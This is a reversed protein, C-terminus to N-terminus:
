DFKHLMKHTIIYLFLLDQFIVFQDKINSQYQLAILVYSTLHTVFAAQTNKHLVVM